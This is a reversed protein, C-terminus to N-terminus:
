YLRRYYPLIVIIIEVIIEIINTYYNRFYKWEAIKNIKKKGAKCQPPPTQKHKYWRGRCPIAKKSDIYKKCKECIEVLKKCNKVTSSPCKQIRVWLYQTCRNGRDLCWCVAQLSAKVQLRTNTNTYKHIQTNTYKHTWFTLKCVRRSGTDQKTRTRSNKTRM